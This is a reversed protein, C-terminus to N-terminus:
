VNIAKSEHAMHSSFYMKNFESVLLRVNSSITKWSLCSVSRLQVEAFMEFLKYSLIKQIEAFAVSDM